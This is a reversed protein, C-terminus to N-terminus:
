FTGAGLEVVYRLRDVPLLGGYQLGARIGWFDTLKSMFSLPSHKINARFKIGTEAVWFLDSSGDDGRDREVGVSVYGDLWRSASSTYMANYGFDRLKKDKWYLRNVIWGGAVPDQFHWFGFLPFVFTAGVDGDMRLSTSLSKVFSERSMWKAIQKIETASRIDPWDSSGKDEIFPLLVPDHEAREPPPFPRLEYQANEPAYVGDQTHRGRLPSDAPLPPFM